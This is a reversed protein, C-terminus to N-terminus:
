TNKMKNEAASFIVWPLLAFQIVPSVGVEVVPLLPMQEAYAWDGRGVHWIEALIAGLTGVTVLLSTRGPNLNGIWDIDKYLIAFGFFLLLVMLMDAVSALACFALHDADYRFGEYLQGHAIEWLLNGIFGFSAILLVSREYRRVDAAKRRFYVYMLVVSLLVAAPIIVIESSLKDM